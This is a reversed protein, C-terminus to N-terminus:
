RDELHFLDQQDQQDQQDELDVPSEPYGLLFLDPLHQHPLHVMLRHPLQRSHNRQHRPLNAQM